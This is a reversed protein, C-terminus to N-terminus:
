VSKGVFLNSTYTDEPGIVTVRIKQGVASCPFRDDVLMRGEGPVGVSGCGMQVGASRARLDHIGKLVVEENIYAETSPVGWSM